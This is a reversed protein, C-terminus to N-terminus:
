VIIIHGAWCTHINGKWLALITTDLLLKGKETPDNEIEDLELQVLIKACPEGKAEAVNFM